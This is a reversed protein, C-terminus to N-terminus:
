NRMSNMRVDIFIILILIAGMIVNQIYTDVNYSTMGNQLVLIFLIGLMTRLMSGRGGFISAGGLVAATIITVELNNGVSVNPHALRATMLAGGFASLMASVVFCIVKVLGTNLGYLISTDVSQGIYYLQKLHRSKYLFVEFVLATLVMVVITWRIGFVHVNLFARASVPFQRGAFRNVLIWNMGRIAMMVGITVMMSNLRFKVILLGAALGVVGSTLMSLAIAVGAPLRHLFIFYAMMAGGFGFMSGVSLDIEGMIILLTFGIAAYYFFSVGYFISHINNVTFFAERTFAFFAIIIVNLFVITWGSINIKQRANAAIENKIAM